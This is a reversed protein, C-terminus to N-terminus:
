ENEKILLMFTKMENLNIPLDDPLLSEPILDVDINIEEQLFEEFEKMKENFQNIIDKYKEQLEGLREQLEPLKEPDIKLSGDPNFKPKDNEDKEAYELLLNNRELEFPELIKAIDTQIKVYTEAEKDIVQKIKALKYVFKTSYKSGDITNGLSNLINYLDLVTKRTVKM